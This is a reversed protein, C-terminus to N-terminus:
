LYNPFPSATPELGMLLTHLKGIFFHLVIMLLEHTKEVKNIKSLNTALALM